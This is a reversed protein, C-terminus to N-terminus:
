SIPFETAFGEAGIGITPVWERIRKSLIFGNVEFPDDALIEEVRHASSATLIILADNSQGDRLFGSAILRGESHLRRLFQRHAPRFDQILSELSHDYAYEIVYLSM